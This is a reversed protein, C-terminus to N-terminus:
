GHATYSLNKTKLHKHIAPLTVKLYDCAESALMKPEM